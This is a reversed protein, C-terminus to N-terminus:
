EGVLNREKLEDIYSDLDDPTLNFRDILDLRDLLGSDFSSIYTWIGMAELSLGEIDRQFITITKERASNYIM